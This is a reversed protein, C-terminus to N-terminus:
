DDALYLAGDAGVGRLAILENQQGTGGSENSGVDKVTEELVAVADSASNATLSSGVFDAFCVGVEEIAIVAAQGKGNNRIHGFRAREVFCDFINVADNM